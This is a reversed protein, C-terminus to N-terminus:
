PECECIAPATTGCTLTELQASAAIVRVCDQNGNNDPENAAWPLFTAPSGLVTVYTGEVAADSIGVWFSTASLTIMAQLESSDDPVALYANAPDNGCIARQNTWGAANALLKYQHNSSVGPLTVYGAPCSAPPADPNPADTSPGDVGADATSSPGVCENSQDGSQAGYRRGSECRSDPFSCRGNPECAGQGDYGTCDSNTACEFAGPKLCGSAAFVALWM